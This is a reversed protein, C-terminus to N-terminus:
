YQEEINAAALAQKYEEETGILNKIQVETAGEDKLLGNAESWNIIGRQFNKQIGLWRKPMEIIM